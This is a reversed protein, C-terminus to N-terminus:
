SDDACGNSGVVPRTDSFLLVHHVIALIAVASTAVAAFPIVAPVVVRRAFAVPLTVALVPTTAVVISPEQLARAVLHARPEAVLLRRPAAHTVLAVLRAAPASRRAAPSRAALAALAVP